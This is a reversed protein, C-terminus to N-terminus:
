ETIIVIAETRALSPAYRILKEAVKRCRFFTFIRANDDAKVENEGWSPQLVLIGCM